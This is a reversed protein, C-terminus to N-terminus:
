KTTITDPSAQSAAPKENAPKDRRLLEKVKESIEQLLRIIVGAFGILWLYIKEIFEPKKVWFVLGLTVLAVLILLLIRNM